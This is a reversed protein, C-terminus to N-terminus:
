EPRTLRKPVLRCRVVSTTFERTLRNAIPRLKRIPVAEFSAFEFESQAVIQEFRGITLQNLGGRVDGFRKADTRGSKERYWRMLVNETFVMHAWPFISFGHGGLPHYWTPGFCTLIYGDEKLLGRMVSLMALPDAFHEFADFSVVVDAKEDTKTTFFCRDALCLEAAKKNAYELADQNIDIGIVRGVGHQAMDMAEIGSECGFDVITKDRLENWIDAGFLVEMKSVGDYATTLENGPSIPVLQRLLLYGVEGGIIGV